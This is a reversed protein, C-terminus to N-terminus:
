KIGTIINYDERFYNHNYYLTERIGKYIFRVVIQM